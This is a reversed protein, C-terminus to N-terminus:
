VRGRTSAGPRRYRAWTVAVCVLYFAGFALYAGTGTGESIFAQRLALNVFV